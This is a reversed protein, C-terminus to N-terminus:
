TQHLLQKPSTAYRPKGLSKMMDAPYQGPDGDQLFIPTTEDSYFMMVNGLQMVRFIRELYEPHWLPRSVMIGEIYNTQPADKGLYIDVFDDPNHFHVKLLGYENDWATDDTSLIQLVTGYDFGVPEGDCYNWLFAEIGM